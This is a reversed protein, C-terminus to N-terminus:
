SMRKNSIKLVWKRNSEGNLEYYWGDSGKYQETNYYEDYKELNQFLNYFFNSNPRVEQRNSNQGCYSFGAPCEITIEIVWTSKHTTDLMYYLADAEDIFLTRDKNVAVKKLSNLLEFLEKQQPQETAKMKIGEGKYNV